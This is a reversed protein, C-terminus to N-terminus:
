RPKRLRGLLAQRVWHTSREVNPKKPDTLVLRTLVSQVLIRRNHGFAIQEGTTGKGRLNALSTLWDKLTATDFDERLALEVIARALRADEGATFATKHRQLRHTIGDLIRGHHAQQLRKSAALRHLLDAAHATPHVWGIKPDHGREDPENRLYDTAVTVLQDIDKDELFPHKTDHAVLLVLSLASFSRLVAAHDSPEDDLRYGLNSTWTHWLRKCDLKRVRNDTLIWRSFLTYATEDRLKGNTSGLLDSLESLLKPLEEATPAQGAVFPQWRALLQADTQADQGPLSALGLAATLALRIPLAM